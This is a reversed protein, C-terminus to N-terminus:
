GFKICHAKFVLSYNMGNLSIFHTQIRLSELAAETRRSLYHITSLTNGFYGACLAIISQVQRVLFPLLILAGFTLTIRFSLGRTHFLLALHLFIDAGFAISRLGYDAHIFATRSISTDRLRLVWGFQAKRRQHGNATRSM